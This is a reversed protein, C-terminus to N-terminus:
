YEILHLWTPVHCFSLLDKSHMITVIMKVICISIGYHLAEPDAILLVPIKFQKGLILLKM